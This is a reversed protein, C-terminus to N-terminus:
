GSWLPVSLLILGTGLLALAAFRGAEDPVTETGGPLVDDPGAGDLAAEASAATDLAGRPAARAAPRPRHALAHVLRGFLLLAAVDMAVALGRM